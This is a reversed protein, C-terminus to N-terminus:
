PLSMIEVGLSTPQCETVEKVCIKWGLLSYVTRWQCPSPNVFGQWHLVTYEVSFHSFWPKRKNLAIPNCNWKSAVFSITFSITSASECECNRLWDTKETVSPFVISKGTGSSFLSIRNEIRFVNSRSTFHTYEKKILPNFFIYENVFRFQKRSLM